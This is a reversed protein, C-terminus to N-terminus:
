LAPKAVRREARVLALFRPRRWTPVGCFAAKEVVDL